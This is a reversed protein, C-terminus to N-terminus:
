ITSTESSSKEFAALEAEPWPNDDARIKRREDYNGALRRGLHVQSMPLRISGNGMQLAEQGNRRKDNTRDFGPWVTNESWWGRHPVHSRVTEMKAWKTAGYVPPRGQLFVM